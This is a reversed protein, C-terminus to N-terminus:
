AGTQNLQDLFLAAALMDAAGGPSICRELMTQSLNKYAVKGAKSDCGGLSLVRQAGDQVLQLAPLGGRSLVCTDDLQAMVALLGNLRAASEGAGRLRSSHLQPLAAQLVLPFGNYAQMRAGGVQYTKCALEGKNGTRTPAHCDHIQALRAARVAVSVASVDVLYQAAATVLLGLAWIAGRHTNVGGTCEMMRTEGCRGLWGITQRLQLPDEITMGAEAMAMFTAHLAQASDCMLTWSLDTHAGRGSLDVLGPKPTLTAEAILAAVVQDALCHATSYSVKDLRSSIKELLQM